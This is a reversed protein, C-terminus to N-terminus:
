RTGLLGALSSAQLVAQRGDTATADAGIQAALEPHRAFVAGGVMVGVAKNRSLRRVMRIHSALSDLSSECGVSFGIVSFWTGRVWDGLEWGSTAPGGHVNWGARTFFDSVMALGFTHTEGPSPVLLVPRGHEGGGTEGCFDAGLGRMVEKLRWLGLTVDAIDASDETWLQGLRRATAALLDLYITELSTGSAVLANVFDVAASADTELVLASMQLVAESWGLTEEPLPQAVATMARHALVLRPLVEKRLAAALASLLLPSGASLGGPAGSLAGAASGTPLIARGNRLALNAGASQEVSMIQQRMEVMPESKEM